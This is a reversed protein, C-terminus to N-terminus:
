IKNLVDELPVGKKNFNTFDIVTEWSDENEPSSLKFIPTSRKMVIYEQGKQVDKAYKDINQRLEKLGVTKEKM